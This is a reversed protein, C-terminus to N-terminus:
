FLGFTLDETIKSNNDPLVTQLQMGHTKLNLLYNKNDGKLILTIYYFLTANFPLLYM